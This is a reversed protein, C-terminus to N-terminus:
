LRVRKVGIRLVRPIQVIDGNQGLGQKAIDLGIDRAHGNRPSVDTHYEGREAPVVLYTPAQGIKLPYNRM